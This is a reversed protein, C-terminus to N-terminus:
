PTTAVMRQGPIHTCSSPHGAQHRPDTATRQKSARVYTYVYTNIQKAESTITSTCSRPKDPHSPRASWDLATHQFYRAIGRKPRCEIDDEVRTTQKNTRVVVIDPRHFLADNTM